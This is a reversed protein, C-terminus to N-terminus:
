GRLVAWARRMSFSESALLTQARFLRAAGRLLLPIALVMLTISAVLQWPPVGGQVLRIMMTIPATLPILSLAVALPGHPNEVLNILFTLPIIAPIVVVMTVPGSEKASPVLAGIGAMITSYVGYGLVYYLLLMATLRWGIGLLTLKLDLASEVRALLLARLLEDVSEQDPVFWSASSRRSFGVRVGVVKQTAPLLFVDEDTVDDGVYLTLSAGISRCLAVLASGKDAAGEPLVNLVHKGGVVRFYAPLRALTEVVADRAASPSPAKSYHVSLSYRKDELEVGLQMALLPTLAESAERTRAALVELGVGPEAGHNGIVHPVPCGALRQLVDDRSRGSIVASLYLRAAQTLLARTPPRMEAADRELVIPALTGDFDFALLVNGTAFRALEDRHQRSLIDRM